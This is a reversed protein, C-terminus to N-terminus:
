FVVDSVVDEVSNLARDTLKKVANFVRAWGIMRLSPTSYSGMGFLEDYSEAFKRIFLMAYESGCSDLLEKVEKIDRGSRYDNDMKKGTTEMYVHEAYAMLENANLDTRGSSIKELMTDKATVRKKQVRKEPTPVSNYYEMVKDRLDMFEDLTKIYQEEESVNQYEGNLRDAVWEPPILLYENGRNPRVFIKILGLERLEKTARKISLTCKGSLQAMKEVSPFCSLNDFAFQNLQLYIRLTGDSLNSSNLILNSVITYRSSM